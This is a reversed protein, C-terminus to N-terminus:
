FYDMRGVVLSISKKQLESHSAMMQSLHFRNPRIGGTTFLAQFEAGLPNM